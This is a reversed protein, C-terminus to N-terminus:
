HHSTPPVMWPCTSPSHDRRDLQIFNSKQPLFTINLGQLHRMSYSEQVVPDLIQRSSAMLWSVSISMPYILFTTRQQRRKTQILTMDPAIMIIEIYPKIDLSIIFLLRWNITKYNYLQWTHQDRFKAKSKSTTDYFKIFVTMFKVFFVSYIKIFFRLIKARKTTFDYCFRNNKSHCGQRCDCAAALLKLWQHM